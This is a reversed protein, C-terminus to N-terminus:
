VVEVIGKLFILTENPAYLWVFKFVIKYSIITKLLDWEYLDYIAM